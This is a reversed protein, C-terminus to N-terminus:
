VVHESFQHKRVRRIVIQLNQARSNGAPSKKAEFIDPVVIVFFPTFNWGYTNKEIYM